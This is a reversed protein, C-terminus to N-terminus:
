ELVAQISWEGVIRLDDDGEYWQRHPMMAVGAFYVLVRDGAKVENPNIKGDKRRRGPGAALVTAQYCESDERRANDPIWIRQSPTMREPKEVRVLCEDRLM